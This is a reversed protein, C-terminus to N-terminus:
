EPSHGERSENRLKIATFSLGPYLLFGFRAPRWSLGLFGALNKDTCLIFYTM